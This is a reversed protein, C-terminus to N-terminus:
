HERASCVQRPVSFDTHRLVRMLSLATDTRLIRRQWVPSVRTQFLLYEDEEVSTWSDMRRDGPM